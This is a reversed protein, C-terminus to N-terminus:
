VVQSAPCSINIGKILLCFSSKEKFVSPLLLNNWVPPVTEQKFFNSLEAAKINSFKFISTLAQFASLFLLLFLCLFITLLDCIIGM